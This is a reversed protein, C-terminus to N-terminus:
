AYMVYAESSATVNTLRIHVIKSNLVPVIRSGSAQNADWAGGSGETLTVIHTATADGNVVLVRVMDGVAAGPIAAVLAAATPFTLAIGTNGPNDVIVGSLVEGATLTAAGSKSVPAPSGPEVTTLSRRVPGENLYVAVGADGALAALVSVGILPGLTSDTDVVKNTNDWYIKKGAAIALSGTKAIVHVGEIYFVGTAGSTIDSAAVGFISGILAGQGSTVTYPAVLAVGSDGDQLFLKTM